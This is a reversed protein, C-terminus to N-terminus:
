NPKSLLFEVRRNLFRGAETNNTAIPKSSGYGASSIRSKEIGNKVFYAVIAEARKVSLKQNFSNSGKNDAHGLIKILITTNLTLYSLLREMEQQHDGRINAKNFDFYVDKFVHVSDLTFEKVQAIGINKPKSNVNSVSVMDLYYYSGKTIERKTQYKQTRKNNKFNGITMYNETGNAEYTITLKVWKIEDSYYNSYSIELAASKDGKLKSFQFGSLVKSTEVAVPLETFRIGFEKVAFDSREALSVYFSISYQEGKVLTSRLKAQIYERYDNPAYMYLGVYGTGFDSPQKGNFNEPTGMAVSCGNFYDTSGKTPMNWDIVDKELNGLTVPCNAYSEFSPNLVLNQGILFYPACFALLFLFGSHLRTLHM